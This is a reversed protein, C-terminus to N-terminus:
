YVSGPNLSFFLGGAGFGYGGSLVATLSGRVATSLHLLAGWSGSFDTLAGAQLASTGAEYLWSTGLYNNREFSNEERYRKLLIPHIKPASFGRPLPLIHGALTRSSAGPVRRAARVSLQM